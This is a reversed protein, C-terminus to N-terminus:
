TWRTSQMSALQQTTGLQAGPASATFPAVQLRWRQVVRMVKVGMGQGWVGAGVQKELLEAVQCSLVANEQALQQAQGAAEAAGQMRLALPKGILCIPALLLM